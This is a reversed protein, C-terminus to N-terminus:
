RQLAGDILREIRQDILREEEATLGLFPRLVGARGAGLVQHYLAKQEASVGRSRQVFTPGTRKRKPAARKAM